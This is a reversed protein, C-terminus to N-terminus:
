HSSVGRARDIVVKSVELALQGYSRLKPILIGLNIGADHPSMFSMLVPVNKTEAHSGFKDAVQRIFQWHTLPDSLTILAPQELWKQLDTEVKLNFRPIGAALGQLLITHEDMFPFKAGDEDLGSVTYCVPVMGIEEACKFLLLGGNKATGTFLTRLLVAVDLIVEPKNSRLGTLCNELRIATQILQRLAFSTPISGQRFDLKIPSYVNIKDLIETGSEHSTLVFEDAESSRPVDKANLRLSTFKGENWQLSIVAASGAPRILEPTIWQDTIEEGDTGIRGIEVVLRNELVLSVLIGDTLPLEFILAPDSDLPQDDWGLGFIISGVALGAIPTEEAM